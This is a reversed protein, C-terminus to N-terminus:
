DKVYICNYGFYASTDEFIKLTYKGKDFYSVPPDIYYIGIYATDKNNDILIASPLDIVREFRHYSTIGDSEVDTFSDNNFIIEKFDETTSNNIRVAVGDSTKECAIICSIAFILFLVYYIKM